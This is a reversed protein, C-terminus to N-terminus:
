RSTGGPRRPYFPRHLGIEDPSEAVREIDQWPPSGVADLFEPFSAVGAAAAYARPLGISFDFGVLAQSPGSRVQLEELLDGDGGRGSPAPELSVVRYRPSAAAHRVLSAVAVQRKRPDSGWDAHAVVAPWGVGSSSGSGSGPGLMCGM